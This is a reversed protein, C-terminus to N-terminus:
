ISLTHTTITPPYAKIFSALFCTYPLIGITVPLRDNITQSQRTVWIEYLHNHNYFSIDPLETSLTVLGAASSNSAETHIYGTSINKVFIYIPESNFAITGLIISGVCEPAPKTETCEVCAM